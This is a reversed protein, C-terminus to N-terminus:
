FSLSAGLKTLSFCSKGHLTAVKVIGSEFLWDLVATRIFAKEEADYAPLTYQWFRGNKRLTIKKEDKLVLKTHSLFDDFYVWANQPILSLSKEIEVIARQTALPSVRQITLLNHPHKFTIHSRKLIEITLWDFAYSSPELIKDKAVALGLIQIKKFLRQIYAQDDTGLLLAAKELSSPTADWSSTEANYALSLTEKEAFRIIAGMDEIFAFEKTRLSKLDKCAEETISPMEKLSNKYDQWEKLPTFIRKWYSGEKEFSVYAILQYELSIAIEELAELTLNYKHLLEDAEVRGKQIIEKGIDTFISSESLTDFLHRQYIQPTLLYKEVLSTFINNSSRPIHYWTPLIHIPLSRLISQLFEMDPRFDEEFRALQVEFYKRREKDVQITEGQFTFIGLPSLKELVKVLEHPSTELNKSLYELTFSLPSFLIEGLIEMERESLALLLLRRKMDSLYDYDSLQVKMKKSITLTDQM